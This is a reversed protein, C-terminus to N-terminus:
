DGMRSSFDGRGSEGRKNGDGSGSIRKRLDSKLKTERGVKADMWEWKEWLHLLYLSGM